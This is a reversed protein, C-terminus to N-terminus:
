PEVGFAREADAWMDKLDQQGDRAPEGSASSPAKRPPIRHYGNNWWTRWSASWDKSDQGRAIHFDRFKEAQFAIQHESAMYRARVWALEKETPRWEPDIRTGVKAAQQARWAAAEEPTRKKRSKKPPTILEAPAIHNNTSTGRSTVTPVVSTVDAEVVPTVDAPIELAKSPSSANGGHTVDPTRANGSSTVDSGSVHGSSTVNDGHTVNGSSTVDARRQFAPMESRAQTRIQQIYHTIEAQLDETSRPMVTYHALARGGSEPAQRRTQLYKFEILESITKAIGSETYHRTIGDRDTYTTARALAARGPFAMGTKANLAEVIAALVLRHRSRLRMDKIANLLVDRQTLILGRRLNEEVIDDFSPQNHGMM